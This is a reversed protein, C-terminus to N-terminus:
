KVNSIIKLDTQLIWSVKSFFHCLHRFIVDRIFNNDDICGLMQCRQAPRCFYIFILTNALPFSTSKNKSKKLCTKQKKPTLYQWPETFKCILTPFVCQLSELLSLSCWPSIFLDCVARFIFSLYCCTYPEGPYKWVSLSCLLVYILSLWSCLNWQRSRSSPNELVSM